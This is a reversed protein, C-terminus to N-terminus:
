VEVNWITSRGSSSSLSTDTGLMGLLHCFSHETHKITQLKKKFLENKKKIKKKDHGVNFDNKYTM